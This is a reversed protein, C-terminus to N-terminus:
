TRFKYITIIILTILNLRQLISKKHILKNKKFTVLNNKTFIHKTFINYIM